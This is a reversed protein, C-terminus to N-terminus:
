GYNLLNNYYIRIWQHIMLDADIAFQNVLQYFMFNQNYYDCYIYILPFVVISYYLFSSLLKILIIYFVYIIILAFFNSIM